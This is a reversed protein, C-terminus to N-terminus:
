KRGEDDNIQIKTTFIEVGPVPSVLDAFFCETSELINDDLIIIEVCMRSDGAAFQLTLVGPNYYDLGAPLIM